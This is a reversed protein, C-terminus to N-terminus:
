DNQNKYRRGRKYRPRKKIYEIIQFIKITIDLIIRICDLM